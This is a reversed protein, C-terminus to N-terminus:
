RPVRVEEAGLADALRATASGPRKPRPQGPGPAWGTLFVLDFSARIRGQGDGYREAYLEGARLFVDRRALSRQREVMANAEGMARLDQLLALMDPYSVPVRDADAVPMAFGARQLLGGLDRLEAMPSVRPYAGGTIGAEAELLCARLEALTEGGFLVALFLGDPVLARNIQVLSGPLDNVWHLTLNSVIMEAAGDAIPLIEDDAVIGPADGGPLREAALDAFVVREAPLAPGGSPWGFAVASGFRRNIDGLREALRTAAEAHLFGATAMRQAAAARRRRLLKRDFPATPEAM